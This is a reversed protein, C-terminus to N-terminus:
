KEVTIVKVALHKLNQTILLERLSTKEKINLQKGWNNELTGASVVLGFKDKLTNAYHAFIEDNNRYIEKQIIIIGDDIVMDLFTAKVKANYPDKTRGAKKEQKVETSTAVPPQEFFPDQLCDYVIKYKMNVRMIDKVQEASWKWTLSSLINQIESLWIERYNLVTENYQFEFDSNKLTRLEDVLKQREQNLYDQFVVESMSEKIQNLKDRWMKVRVEVIRYFNDVVKEFSECKLKELFLEENSKKNDLM